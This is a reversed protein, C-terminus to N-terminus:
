ARIRRIRAERLMAWSDSGDRTEVGVEVPNATAGITVELRVTSLGTRAAAAALTRDGLRATVQVDSGAVLELSFEYTAASGDRAPKLGIGQFLRAPGDIGSLWGSPGWPLPAFFRDRAAQQLHHGQQQPNIPLDDLVYPTALGTRGVRSWHSLGGLEFDGNPLASDLTDPDHETGPWSLLGLDNHFNTIRTLRAIETHAAAGTPIGTAVYTNDGITIDRLPVHNDYDGANDQWDARSTFPGRATPDDTWSSVPLLAELHNGTVLVQSIEILSHDPAKAGWPIFAFGRTRSKVHNDRVTIRTSPMPWRMSYWQIDPRFVPSAYETRVYIGDDDVDLTNDVVTIDQSNLICVGDSNRYRSTIDLGRVTGRRSSYLMVNWSHSDRIGLGSIEFDDVRHFAIPAVNIVEEDPGGMLQIEGAGTVTVRSVQGAHILPLNERSALHYPLVSGGPLDHGRAPDYGYTGPDDSQVLVGDIVLTTDGHIRLHGVRFRRGAPLVVTLGPRDLAQDLADQITRQDDAVGDGTAGWPTTTVDIVHTPRTTATM